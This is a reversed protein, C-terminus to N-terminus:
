CSYQTCQGMMITTAATKVCISVSTCLKFSQLYEVGLMSPPSKPAFKQGEACVAPFVTTKVTREFEDVRTRAAHVTTNVLNPTSTIPAGM